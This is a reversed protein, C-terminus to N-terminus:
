KPELWLDQERAAEGEKFPSVAFVLDKYGNEQVRLEAGRAGHIFLAYRGETNTQTLGQRKGDADYWEVLVELVPQQSVADLVMGHLQVRLSDQAYATAGLALLVLTPITRRMM